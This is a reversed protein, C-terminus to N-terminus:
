EPMPDDNNWDTRGVWIIERPRSEFTGCEECIPIPDLRRAWYWRAKDRNCDSRCTIGIRCCTLLYTPPRFIPQYQWGVTGLASWFNNLNPASKSKEPPIIVNISVNIKSSRTSRLLSDLSHIWDVEDSLGGPSMDIDLRSIGCHKAMHEFDFIQFRKLREAKTAWDCSYEEMSVIMHKMLARSQENGVCAVFDHILRPRRSSATCKFSNSKYLIPM